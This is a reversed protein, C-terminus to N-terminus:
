VRGVPHNPPTRTSVPHLCHAHRQRSHQHHIALETIFDLAKMDPLPRGTRQCCRVRNTMKSVPKPSPLLKRVVHAAQRSSSCRLSRKTNMEISFCGSVASASRSTCPSFWAAGAGGTSGTKACFNTVAHGLKVGPMWLRCKSSGIVASPVKCPTVSISHRPSTTLM